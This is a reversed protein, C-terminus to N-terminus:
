VIMVKTRNGASLEIEENMGFKSFADTVRVMMGFQIDNVFEAHEGWLTVKIKGTEDELEMNSVSNQTGDEREFERIEGIEIVRGQISYSKGPLIDNIKDLKEQYTIAKTSTAVSGRNGVNLEVQQSFNNVRSYANMVDITEGFDFEDLHATKDDWLTVRIKGTEDGLVFNGITGQSGDKKSFTRVDSIDLIVGTLNVGNMNDAVDVIKTFPLVYDVPEDSIEVSGANGVSLEVKQSFNNIKAYAGQLQVSQGPKLQDVLAAREDWLSVRITGTSDGLTMGAVRGEGGDKRAFTKVNGLDLVKGSVTIDNMGDKIDEIKRDPTSYEVDEDSPAFVGNNGVNVETGNLGKKTYGAVVVVSGVDVEGSELVEVKSDWVSVRIKGTSDGVVVNAVRGVTGDNRKFERPEYAALVKAFFSINGSNEHICDITVPEKDTNSVGLDSLVLRACMEDDCLGGLAEKRENVKELFDDYSILHSVKEYIGKMETM